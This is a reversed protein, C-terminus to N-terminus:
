SNKQSMVKTSFQHDRQEAENKGQAALPIQQIAPLRLSWIFRLGCTATSWFPLPIFPVCYAFENIKIKCPIYHMLIASTTRLRGSM